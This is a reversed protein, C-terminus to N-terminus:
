PNKAVNIALQRKLYMPFTRNVNAMMPAHPKFFPKYTGINDVLLLPTLRKNNNHRLWVGPLRNGGKPKGVFAKGDSIYGQVTKLKRRSINGHKDTKLKSSTIPLFRSGARVRGQSAEAFAYEYAKPPRQGGKINGAIYPRRNGGTDKATVVATPNKKNALQGIRVGKEVFPKPRDM